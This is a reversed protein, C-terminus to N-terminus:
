QPCHETRQGVAAKITFDSTSLAQSATKSGSFNTTACIAGATRTATPSAKPNSGPSILVPFIAAAKFFIPNSRTNSVAKLASKVM